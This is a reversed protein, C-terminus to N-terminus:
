WLKDLCFQVKKKCNLSAVLADRGQNSKIANVINKENVNMGNWHGVILAVILDFASNNWKDCLVVANMQFVLLTMGMLLQGHLMTKM